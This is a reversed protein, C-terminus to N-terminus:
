PPLFSIIKLFLVQPYTESIIFIKPSKLGIDRSLQQVNTQLNILLSELIESPVM